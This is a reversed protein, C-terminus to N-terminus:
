FSFCFLQVHSRRFLLRSLSSFFREIYRINLPPDPGESLSPPPRDDLGQSGSILYARDLFLPPAPGVPGRGQVRWQHQPAFKFANYQPKRMFPNTPPKMTEYLLDSTM